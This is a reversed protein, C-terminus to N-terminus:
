VKVNKAGVVPLAAETSLKPDFTDSTRSLPTPPLTPPKKLQPSSTMLEGTGRGSLWGMAEKISRQWFLECAGNYKTLSPGYEIKLNLTPEAQKLCPFPAEWINNDWTHRFCPSFCIFTERRVGERKASFAMKQPYDSNTWYTRGHKKKKVFTDERKRADTEGM